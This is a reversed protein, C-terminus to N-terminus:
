TTVANEISRQYNKQWILNILKRYTIFLNVLTQVDAKISFLIEKIANFRKDSNDTHVPGTSKQNEAQQLAEEQSQIKEEIKKVKEDHKQIFNLRKTERKKYLNNVESERKNGRDKNHKRSKQGKRLFKRMKKHASNTKRTNENIKDHEESPQLEIKKNEEKVEGQKKTERLKNVKKVFENKTKGVFKRIESQKSVESVGTKKEVKELDQGPLKVTPFDFPKGIEVAVEKRDGDKFGRLPTLPITDFDVLM